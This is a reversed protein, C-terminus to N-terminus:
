SGPQLPNNVIAFSVTKGGNFSPTLTYIVDDGNGMIHDPGAERLSYNAALPATAGDLNRMATISFSDYARETTTGAAPLTTGTITTTAVSATTVVRVNDIGWSENNIDELNIARFTITTASATATFAIEMNRYISD